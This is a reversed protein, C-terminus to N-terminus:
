YGKAIIGPMLSEVIANTNKMIRCIIANTLAKHSNQFTHLRIAHINFAIASSNM